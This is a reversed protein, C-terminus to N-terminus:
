RERPETFNTSAFDCHFKINRHPIAWTVFVKNNINITTVRQKINNRNYSKQLIKQRDFLQLKHNLLCFKHM